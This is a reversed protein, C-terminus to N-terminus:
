QGIDLISMSRKKHILLSHTRCQFIQEKLHSLCTCVFVEKAITAVTSSFNSNHLISKKKELSNGLTRGVEVFMEMNENRNVKIHM